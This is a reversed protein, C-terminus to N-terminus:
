RPSVAAGADHQTAFRYFFWPRATPGDDPSSSPTCESGKLTSTAVVCSYWFLKHAWDTCVNHTTLVYLVM